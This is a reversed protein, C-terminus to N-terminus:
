LDHLHNMEFLGFEERNKIHESKVSSFEGSFASQVLDPRTTLRWWPVILSIDNSSCFSKNQSLSPSVLEILDDRIGCRKLELEYLKPHGKDLLISLTEADETRILSDNIKLKKLRM